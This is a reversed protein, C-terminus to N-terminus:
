LTLLKKLKSKARSLKTRCNANSIDLIESLEQHDYGELYYLKLILQDKASLQELAKNLLEVKHNSNGSDAVLPEKVEPQEDLRVLKKKERFYEYSKHTIIKKLWGGFSNQQNYQNLKGFAIIFGEQIAEEALIPDAIIRLATNYMAKNYRKYLEFQAQKNQQRCLDILAESNLSDINM